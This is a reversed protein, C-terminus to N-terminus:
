RLYVFNLHGFRAHWLDSIASPPLYHTLSTADPLKYVGHEEVGECVLSRTSRDRVWFHDESFEVLLGLGSTGGDIQGRTQDLKYLNPVANERNM